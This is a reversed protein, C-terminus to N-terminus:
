PKPYVRAAANRQVRRAGFALFTSGRLSLVCTEFEWMRLELGRVRLGLDWVDLGWYERLAVGGVIFRGPM